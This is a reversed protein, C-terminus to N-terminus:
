FYPFFRTKSYNGVSYYFRSNYWTLEMGIYEEKGGLISVPKKLGPNPRSSFRVFRGISELDQLIGAYRRFTELTDNANFHIEVALQKVTDALFGSRLMQPIADWESFEVDMKLVDILTPQHGLMEYISSATKMNWKTTPHAEIKGSLGLNYFHIHQSRDYDGVGMSPDFSHVQCGYQAMAEDFTWQNNIGFSYVLCNDYVPSIFQDLCVAKHGDPAAVGIGTAVCFGFDVALFCSTSNTWHFYRYMEEPDMSQSARNTVSYAIPVVLHRLMWNRSIALIFVTAVLIIWIFRRVGSM